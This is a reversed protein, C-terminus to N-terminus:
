SSITSFIFICDIIIFLLLNVQKYINIITLIFLIVQQYGNRIHKLHNIQCVYDMFVTISILSLDIVIYLESLMLTM